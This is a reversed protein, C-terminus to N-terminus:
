KSSLNVDNIRINEEKDSQTLMSVIHKAYLAISILTVQSYLTNNLAADLRAFMNRIFGANYKIFITSKTILAYTLQM